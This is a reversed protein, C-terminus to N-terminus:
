ELEWIRFNDIQVTADGDDASAAFGVGGEPLQTSEFRDVLTDNVYLRVESGERIVRLLNLAGAEANVARNGNEFNKDSGGESTQVGYGGGSVFFFHQDNDDQGDVENVGYIIGCSGDSGGETVVCEVEAAFDGLPEDLFVSRFSQESLVAEYVGNEVKASSGEGPTIDISDASDFTEDIIQEADVILEEDAALQAASAEATAAQSTANAQQVAPNSGILLLAGCGLVLLGVIGLVVMLWIPLGRRRPQELPTTTASAPPLNFGVPEQSM